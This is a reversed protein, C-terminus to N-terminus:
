RSINWMGDHRGFVDLADLRIGACVQCFSQTHSRVACVSVILMDFRTTDDNSCVQTPVVTLLDMLQEIKSTLFISQTLTKTECFIIQILNQLKRHFEWLSLKTSDTPIDRFQTTAMTLSKILRSRKKQGCHDPLASTHLHRFLRMESKAQCPHTEPRCSAFLTETHSLHWPTSTTNWNM